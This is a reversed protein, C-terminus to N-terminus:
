WSMPTVPRPAPSRRFATRATPPLAGGICERGVREGPGMVPGASGPVLEDRDRDRTRSWETLRKVDRGLATAAVADFLEEQQLDRTRDRTTIKNLCLYNGRGKLLAFTPSRPLHAALATPWGICDRGVLQRQL